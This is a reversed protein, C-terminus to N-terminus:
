AALANSWENDEIKKVIIADKEQTSWNALWSSIMSTVCRLLELDNASLAYVLRILKDLPEAIPLKGNELRSLHEPEIGLERAFESAKKDLRKRLFRAEDGSLSKKGTVLDFAILRMLPKLAPIEAVTNGCECVFYRIGLLYVNRLGSETFHYPQADTAWKEVRSAHCNHASMKEM